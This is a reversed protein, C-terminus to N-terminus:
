APFAASANDWVYIRGICHWPYGSPYYIQRDDNGVVKNPRVIRGNRRQLVPNFERVALRPHFIRGAWAPAEPDAPDECKGHTEIDIQETGQGLLGEVIYKGLNLSLHGEGSSELAEIEGYHMEKNDLRSLSLVRRQAELELSDPMKQMAINAMRAIKDPHLPVIENKKQM